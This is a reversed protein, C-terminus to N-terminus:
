VLKKTLRQEETTDEDMEITPLCTIKKIEKEKELMGVVETSSKEKKRIRWAINNKKQRQYARRQTQTPLNKQRLIDITGNGSLFSYFFDAVTKNM